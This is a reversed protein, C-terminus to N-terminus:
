AGEPQPQNWEIWGSGSRGDTMEFRAYARPFRSVRGDDATLVLPGFAVPEVSVQLGAPEMRIVDSRALGHDGLVETVELGTVTEVSGAHQVYGFAVPSGPIRVDVLHLRTGDDLRASAWCWGFAWWDRLGWSHDRQGQGHVAIREGGVRVEGAVLCPIEYRSTALYHYPSGDTSWALDFALTTSVGTEERYVQAPEDYAIASSRAAVSFTRLADPTACTVESGEGAAAITPPPSGVLDYVQSVVSPRGPGVLAATWWAVSRNPYYGLRVYGAVSGDETVFDAYYSENWWEEATPEHRAEDAHDVEHGVLDNM